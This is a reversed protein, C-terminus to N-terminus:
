IAVVLVERLTAEVVILLVLYVREIPLAMRERDVWLVKNVVLVLPDDLKVESL